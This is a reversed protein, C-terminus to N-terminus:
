STPKKLPSPHQYIVQGEKITSIVQIHKIQTPPVKLPNQDLIVLDALKGAALSGKRDEEGYQYAAWATISKLAHYPSIREDPGIIDGSRSLRNVATDLVMLSNPLAVPADHHQTFIMGKNLATQGPSIAYARQKGFVVDRHWDGWYYTHMAFFSPMVHLKKMRDLQDPRSNQAHIAVHRQQTVGYHQKAKELSNLYADLAADGNTHALLQWQNKYATAVLQDLVNQDAIAPYGVYDRPQGEPPVVYPETLWATRGQPSGDLSLKAGAIRFRQQYQNQVGYRNLYAHQAQLDPYCALDVSLRNDQALKRWTECVEATARGEQLTTFGFRTYADVGALALKENTAADYQSMMAFLPTFLAMEELVGNPKSSGQIRRIVGGAPDARAATYGSLELAKHNMAGLHGSQHIVLVPKQTSIKDLETATPHRQEKLQADDYGFGIIWQNEPYQQQWQQTTQILSAIDNVQGDPPALLNASMAQFGANYAHGHADIFGPLLTKGQLDIAQYHQAHKKAAALTGIYQINAGQVLLAEAYQPQEGLMTIIDGNFYLQQTLPSSSSPSLQCATFLAVWPLCLYKKNM